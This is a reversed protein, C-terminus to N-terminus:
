RLVFAIAEQRSAHATSLIGPTATGPTQTKGRRRLAAAGQCFRAEPSAGQFRDMYSRTLTTNFMVGNETENRWVAAKLARHRCTFVPARSSRESDGSAEPSRSATSASKAM